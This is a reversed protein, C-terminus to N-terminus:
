VRDGRRRIRPPLDDFTRAPCIVHVSKDEVSRVVEHRM